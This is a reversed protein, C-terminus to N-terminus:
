SSDSEVSDNVSVLQADTTERRSETIMGRVQM